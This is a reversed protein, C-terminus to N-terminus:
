NNQFPGPPTSKSRGFSSVIHGAFCAGCKEFFVGGELVRVGGSFGDPVRGGGFIASFKWFAVISLGIFSNKFAM